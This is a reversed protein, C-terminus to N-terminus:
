RSICNLIEQLFYQRRFCLFTEKLVIDSRAVLVSSTVDWFKNFDNSFTLLTYFLIQVFFCFCVNKHYTCYLNICIINLIGSINGKISAFRIFSTTSICKNISRIQFDRSFYLRAPIFEPNMLMYTKGNGTYTHRKKLIFCKVRPRRNMQHPKITTHRYAAQTFTKTKKSCFILQEIVM